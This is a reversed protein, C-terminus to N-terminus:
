LNIFFHLFNFKVSTVSSKPLTGTRVGRLREREAEGGNQKEEKGKAKRQRKGEEKTEARRDHKEWGYNLRFTLFAFSCLHNLPVWRSFFTFPKSHLKRSERIRKHGKLPIHRRALVIQDTRIRYSFISIISFQLSRFKM